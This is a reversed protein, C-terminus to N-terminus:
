MRTPQFSSFLSYPLSSPASLSSLVSPLAESPPFSLGPPGKDHGISLCLPGPKYKVMENWEVYVCPTM